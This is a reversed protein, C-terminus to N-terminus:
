VVGSSNEPLSGVLGVYFAAICSHRHEGKKETKTGTAPLERGAVASGHTPAHALFRSIQPEGLVREPEARGIKCDCM